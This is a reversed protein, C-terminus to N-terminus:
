ANLLHAYVLGHLAALSTVTVIREHRGKLVLHWGPRGEEESPLRPIVALQRGTYGRRTAATRVIAAAAEDVQSLRGRPQRLRLLRALVVTLAGVMFALLTPALALVMFMLALM